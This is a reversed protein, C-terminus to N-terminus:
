MYSVIANRGKGNKREMSNGTPMKHEHSAYSYSIFIKFSPSIICM